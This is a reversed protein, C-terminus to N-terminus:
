GRRPKTLIPWYCVSFTAFAAIWLTASLHQLATSGLSTGALIRALAAAIVMLYIATTWRDAALARGSHGLSARTMVALTM